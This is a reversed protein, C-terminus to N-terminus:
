SASSSGGPPEVKLKVLENAKRMMNERYSRGSYRRIQTVTIGLQKATEQPGAGYAFLTFACSNKLEQASYCPIGAMLTYKKMLRSIYM